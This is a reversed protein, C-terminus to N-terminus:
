PIQKDIIWKIENIKEKNSLKNNNMIRIIDKYVRNINDLKRMISNSRQTSIFILSGLIIIAIILIIIIM